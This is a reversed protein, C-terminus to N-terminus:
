SAALTGVEDQHQATSRDLGNFFESRYTYAVRANVWENEFYGALNYTDRSAGVLEGTDTPAEKRAEADAYTYNAMVGFGWAIPQQWTGARELPREAALALHDALNRRAPECGGHVGQKSTM